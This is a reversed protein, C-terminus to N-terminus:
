GPNKTNMNQRALEVAEEVYVPCNRYVDFSAGEARAKDLLEHCNLSGFNQKFQELLHDAKIKLQDKTSHDDARTRGGELGMAMLAGTVAGCTRGMGNIGGGFASSIKLALDEDLGQELAFVSFVSQACNYGKDFRTRALKKHENNEM